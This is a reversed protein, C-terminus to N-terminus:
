LDTALQRYFCLTRFFTGARSDKAEAKQLNKLYPMPINPLPFLAQAASAKCIIRALPEGM